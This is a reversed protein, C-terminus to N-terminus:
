FAAQYDLAIAHLPFMALLVFVFVQMHNM